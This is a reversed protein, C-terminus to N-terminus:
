QKFERVLRTTDAFPNWLLKAVVYRGLASLRGQKLIEEPVPKKQRSCEKIEEALEEVDVKGEVEVPNEYPLPCGLQWGGPFDGRPLSPWDILYLEHLFSSALDPIKERIEPQFFRVGHDELYRAVGYGTAEPSSGAIVVLGQHARLVFGEEGAHKLEQQTVRGCALAAQKGLLFVNGTDPGIKMEPPNVPLSVGFLKKLYFQLKQAIKIEKEPAEPSTLIARVPTLCRDVTFTRFREAEYNDRDPTKNPRKRWKDRPFPISYVLNPRYQSLWIVQGRYPLDDPQHFYTLASVGLLSFEVQRTEPHPYFNDQPWFEIKIGSLNGSWKGKQKGWSGAAHQRLDMRVIQEGPHLPIDSRVGTVGEMDLYFTAPVSSSSVVHFEVFDCGSIDVPSDLKKILAFSGARIINKGKDSLPLRFEPLKNLPVSVSISTVTEEPGFKYPKETASLVLEPSTSEVAWNERDKVRTLDIIKVLRCEGEPSKKVSLGQIILEPHVIIRQTIDEPTLPGKKDKAPDEVLDEYKLQLSKLTDNMEKELSNKWWNSKRRVAETLLQHYANLYWIVDEQFEQIDERSVFNQNRPNFRSFKETLFIIVDCALKNQVDVREQSALRWAEQLLQRAQQFTEKSALIHAQERSTGQLALERDLALYKLIPAAAKGYALNIYEEVLKEADLYPDWNLRSIVYLFLGDFLTPTGCCYVTRVRNKAYWKVRQIHGDLWLYAGHGPYDYIGLQQPFMMAWGMFEEMATINLPHAFSAYRCGASTWFWPCYLVIVNSEPKEKVPPKITAQYAHTFIIKEPHSKAAARAVSNVWSLYRDTCYYYFYDQALCQQCRCADADADTCYFFRRDNQINMWEVMREAAIRHVEPNSLCLSMRSMTTEKPLRKGGSVAFYEPHSDYYIQKPVLYAATHDSGLWEGPLWNKRAERGFFEPNAAEQPNGLDQYSAGFMGRDLYDLLGRYEFFPKSSFSGESISTPLVRPLTEINGLSRNGPYIKLGMKELLAYAGYLTGLSRYGTVAIGEATIRILYGDYKVAELEKKKVLGSAIAAKGLYIAPETKSVPDTVVPVELLFHTKLRNRLEEAAQKEQWSPEEGVQISKLSRLDFGSAVSIFIGTLLLIVCQVRNKRVM